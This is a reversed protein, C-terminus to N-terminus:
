VATVLERDPCILLKSGEPTRDDFPVGRASKPPPVSASEPNRDLKKSDQKQNLESRIIAVSKPAEIGLQITNGKIKFVSVTINDSICISQNAKRTLVLM